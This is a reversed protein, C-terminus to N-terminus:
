IFYYNVFLGSFFGQPQEKSEKGKINETDNENGTLKKFPNFSEFSPVM